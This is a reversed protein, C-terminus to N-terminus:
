ILLRDLVMFRALARHRIHALFSPDDETMVIEFRANFPVNPHCVELLKLKTRKSDM